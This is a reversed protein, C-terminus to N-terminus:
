APSPISFGDGVGLGHVDDHVLQALAAGLVAVLDGLAKGRVEGQPIAAFAFEGRESVMRVAPPTLTMGAPSTQMLVADLTSPMNSPAFVEVVVTLSITLAFVRTSQPAFM